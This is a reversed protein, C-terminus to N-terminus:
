VLLVRMGLSHMSTKLDSSSETGSSRERRAAWSQEIIAVAPGLHGICIDSEKLRHMIDRLNQEDEPM